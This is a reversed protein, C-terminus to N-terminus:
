MGHYPEAVDIGDLDFDRIGPLREPPSGYGQSRGQGRTGYVGHTGEHYGGFERSRIPLSGPMAGTVGPRSSPESVVSPASSDNGSQTSRGAPTAWGGGTGTPSRPFSHGGLSLPPFHGGGGGMVPSGADGSEENEADSSGGDHGEGQWSGAVVWCHSLEHSAEVDAPRRTAPAKGAAASGKWPPIRTGKLRPSLHYPVGDRFRAGPSDVSVSALTQLIGYILVWRGRRAVAPDVEGIHDTKEFKAFADVLESHTLESGLSYINTAETYALQVRREMAGSRQPAAPQPPPATAKKSSRFMSSSTTAAPPPERTVSATPAISEPVLPYPHPIHPFRLKNDFEIIMDTLPLEPTDADFGRNGSESVMMWKRGSRAESVDWVIDRHVLYDYLAGFDAQLAQAVTRTLWMEEGDLGLPDSAAAGQQHQTPAPAPPWCGYIRTYHSLLFKQLRDAAAKAPGSAVPGSSPWMEHCQLEVLREEAAHVRLQTELCARELLARTIPTLCKFDACQELRGYMGACHLFCERWGDEWRVDAGEAWALLGVATEPDGRVDDLSRATLYNVLMAVNDSDSPLYADLRGLLDALAQHLSIGVISAHYLLAFINRTTIHHRLQDVKSMAVPTPFYMEYSIQGDSDALSTDESVPPTPHGPHHHGPARSARPDHRMMPPAGQPSPPLSLDDEILGERLMTILYRSETAEIIHSSLRFSPNPRPHQGKHGFFVLVDGNPDWLEPDKRLKNWRQVPRGSGIWRKIPPAMAAPPQPIPPLRSAPPPSTPASPDWQYEPGQRQSQQRSPMPVPMADPPSFQNHFDNPPSPSAGGPYGQAHATPGRVTAITAVSPPRFEPSRADQRDKKKFTFTKALGKRVGDSKKDLLSRLGSREIGSVDETNLTPRRAREFGSYDDPYDQRRGSSGGSGGSSLSMTSM